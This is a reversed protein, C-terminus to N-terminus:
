YIKNPNWSIGFNVTSISAVTSCFITNESLLMACELFLESKRREMNRKERYINSLFTRYLYISALTLNCAHLKPLNM